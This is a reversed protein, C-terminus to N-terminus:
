YVGGDSTLDTIMANFEADALTKPLDNISAINNTAFNDTTIVTNVDLDAKLILASTDLEKADVKEQITTEITEEFTALQDTVLGEVTAPITTNIATDLKDSVNLSIDNEFETLKNDMQTKNYFKSEIYIRMESMATKLGEFTIYAM